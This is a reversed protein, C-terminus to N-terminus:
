YNGRLQDIHQHALDIERILLNRNAEFKDIVDLADLLYESAVDLAQEDSEARAGIWAMRVANTDM